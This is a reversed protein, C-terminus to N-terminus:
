AGLEWWLLLEDLEVRNATEVMAKLNELQAILDLMPPELRSLRMIYDELEALLATKEEDM